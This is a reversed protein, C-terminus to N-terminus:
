GFQPAAVVMGHDPNNDAGVESGGEIALSFGWGGGGSACKVLLTNRGQLLTVAAGGDVAAQTDFGDQSYVNQKNLWIELKDSSDVLLRVQQRRSSTIITDAYALGSQQGFSRRFDVPWKDGAQGESWTVWAGATSDHWDRWRLGRGGNQEPSFVQAHISRRWDWPFPGIVRWDRAPVPTVRTEVRGPFSLRHGDIVIDARIWRTARVGLSPSALPQEPLLVEAAHSRGRDSRELTLVQASRTAAHSSFQDIVEVRVPDPGIWGFTDCLRFAGGCPVLGIGAGIALAQAAHEGGISECEAIVARRLAAAAEPDPSGALSRGFAEGFRRSVAAVNLRETDTAVLDVQVVAQERISREPLSLTLRGGSRHTDIEGSLRVGDVEAHLLQAVGGIEVAFVRREPQGAFAGQAPGINLRLRRAAPTSEAKEPVGTWAAVIPTTSTREGHLDESIGDDEVLSVAYERDATTPWLRVRIERAADATSRRGPTEMPVPVGEPVFVPIEDISAAVIADDGAIFREGSKWRRWAPAETTTGRDDGHDLPPLWVSQTAVCREGVGARVVPAALLHEGLMYQQPQTYARPNGPHDIYMPRLLPVSEACSRHVQTYIYPMLASRLRFAERLAEFFKPAHTWPRRDLVGTRASHLRLAASLAGFQVWRTTAEEIRPGFHGGIDHSWFFCGVNGATATFPVQFALMEWGTHADGSFHIPHRHDGWRHEASDGAWRSFSVGRRTAAGDRGRTHETYLRNLWQLNTLGPISRVFRGQQWDLWWFDVGARGDGPPQELPRHVHEFLATMYRRDGADFPATEGSAPDRGIARMFEAYRDEHPGVGDAPHLNLTVALGESHFWRLLEEADPLLERNWSWGTWGERHWDMDLVVVDLPIGHTDYDKVIRRFEESTHPWYRSYWSGLLYRRPIPVPGSLTTFARLAARYDCGYALLYWDRAEPDEDRTRVWGDVLLHGRSDDILYWGDRSLLGDPLSEPTRLGDLTSLTGGLNGKQVAGPRWEVRDGAPGGPAFPGRVIVRLSRESLGRGDPTYSLALRETSITFEAAGLADSVVVPAAGQGRGVALLTPADVFRGSPSYEIRVCEPTILTFRAAPM